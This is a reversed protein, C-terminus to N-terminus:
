SSGMDPMNQKIESQWLTPNVEGHPVLSRLLMYVSRGSRSPSRNLAVFPVLRSLKSYLRLKRSTYKEAVPKGVRQAWGISGCVGCPGFADSLLVRECFARIPGEHGHLVDHLAVISGISLHRSFSEIDSMAGAYTHDGDIWLMRLPRNWTAALEQSTMQHFEVIHRISNTDLTTWFQEPLVEPHSDTPDTPAPLNLPDVAVVRDGGSFAVSKALLTTSKGKFSGIELIEGLGPPLTMACLSLFRVERETLHGALGTSLAVMDDLHKGTTDISM